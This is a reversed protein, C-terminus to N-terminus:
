TLPLARLNVPLGAVMLFVPDASAAMRQNARGLVDRYHRGLPYPPVLGFGVENSVVILAFGVADRAQLLDGIEADLAAEVAAVDAASLNPTQRERALLYDTAVDGLSDLLVVAGAPVARLAAGLECSREITQWHAPRDRQHRAIRDSMEADGAQGAAVYVVPRDSSVALEVAWRSKGSRAGGLIFTLDGLPLSGKEHKM